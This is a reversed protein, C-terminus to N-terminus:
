GGESAPRVAENQIIDWFSTYIGTRYVRTTDQTEGAWTIRCEVAFPMADDEDISDWTTEDVGYTYREGRKLFVEFGSIGSLMVETTMAPQENALLHRQESRVLQLMGIADPDPRVQWYVRAYGLDMGTTVWQADSAPTTHMPWTSQVSMEIQRAPMGDVPEDTVMFPESFIGNPRSLQQIDQQWQRLWAREQHLPAMKDRLIDRSRFAGILMASILTMVVASIALALLMEILTFAHKRGNSSVAYLQAFM